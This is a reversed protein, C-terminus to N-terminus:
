LLQRAMVPRKAESRSLFNLLQGKVPSARSQLKLTQLVSEHGDPLNLIGDFKLGLMIKYAVFFCFFFLSDIQSDCTILKIVCSLGPSTLINLVLSIVTSKNFDELLRTLFVLFAMECIPPWLGPNPSKGSAPWSTLPQISTPPKGGAQSLVQIGARGFIRFAWAM